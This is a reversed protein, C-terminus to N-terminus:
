PNPKFKSTIHTGINEKNHFLLLKGNTALLDFSPRKVEIETM